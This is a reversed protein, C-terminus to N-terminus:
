DNCDIHRLILIYPNVLNGADVLSLVPDALVSWDCAKFYDSTCGLILM